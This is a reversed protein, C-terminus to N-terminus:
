YAVEYIFIQNAEERLVFNLGEHNLSSLNRNTMIYSIGLDDVLSIPLALKFVDPQILEFTPEEKDVLEVMVHAYRNYIEEYQGSPDLSRWLDLNPYANTSNLTPAGAFLPVNTMPYGLGDVIWLGEDADDIAKIETVLESKLIVDTGSRLPNVMVGSLFAILAIMKVIAKENVALLTVIALYLLVATSGIVLVKLTALILPNATLPALVAMVYAQTSYLAFIMIGISLTLAMIRRTRQSLNWDSVALARFLLIINIFSFVPVLRQTMTFSMLTVKALSNPIGVIMYVMFFANLFLLFVSLKDKQRIWAVIAGIIGLPFFDYFVNMGREDSLGFIPYWASFPYGTAMSFYFEGGGASQRAGPYATNMTLQIAEWSKSVIYVLGLAVVIVALSLIPLDKKWNFIATPLKDFLLYIAVGVFIFLYPVQWAPYLVLAYATACWGLAVALLIRYGYNATKLYHYVIIVALAGMSMIDSGGLSWWQVAPGFAVLLTASLALGRRKNLVIMFFEFLTMVLFVVRFLWHYSFGKDLGLFLYGWHAPKFLIALDFVPQNLLIYMDTAEGRVVDNFYPLFQGPDTLQSFTWATSTAFEDSRIARSVGFWVNDHDMSNLYSGWMGISSFTLEFFVGLIFLGLVILYRYSYVFDNIRDRRARYITTLCILLGLVLLSGLGLVFPNNKLTILRQPNSYFWVLLLGWIVGPTMLQRARLM